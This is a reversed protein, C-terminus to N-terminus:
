EGTAAALLDSVTRDELDAVVSAVRDADITTETLCEEFKERLRDEPVPNLPSGPADVVTREHLIGDTTEVTVRGGYRGLDAVADADYDAGVQALAEETAIDAVSEDSFAALGPDGTRLTAALCYEISFKAELGDAPRSHILVDEAGPHLFARVSAVNEPTLGEEARLQRLGEMVGHTIHASPYLKLAIEAVGDFSDGELADPDYSDGAMARGYSAEGDLIDPDATAGERALLAARFGGSAALGAHLPKIMTGFNRRLGGASSAAIGLARQLTARDLDLLLGVAAAAGLPGVAATSHFGRDYQEPFVSQGARSLVEVGAAYARLLRDGGADALEGAALAAPVVVTTSHLPFSAFTDDYDAAHGLAGNTLAAREHSTAAGTLTTAAGTAPDADVYADLTECTSGTTGYLAAGLYDRIALKSRSLTKAPLDDVSTVFAALDATVTM